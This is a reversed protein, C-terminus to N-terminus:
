GQGPLPRLRTTKSGLTIFGGPKLDPDSMPGILWEAAEGYDRERTLWRRLEWACELALASLNENALLLPKM